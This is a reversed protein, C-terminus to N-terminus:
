KPTKVLNIYWVSKKSGPTSIETPINVGGRLPKVIRPHFFPNITQKDNNISSGDNNQCTLLKQQAEELSKELAQIKETRSLLKKESISMSKKLELNQDVLQKQVKSLQDLSQELFFMKQMDNDSINRPEFFEDRSEAEADSTEELAQEFITSQSRPATQLSHSADDSENSQPELGESTSHGEVADDFIKSFSQSIESTCSLNTIEAMLNM